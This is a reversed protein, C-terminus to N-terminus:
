EPWAVVRSRTHRVPGDDDDDDVEEEEDGDKRRRVGDEDGCTVTRWANPRGGTGVGRLREVLRRWDRSSDIGRTTQVPM